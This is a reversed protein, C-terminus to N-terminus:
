YIVFVYNYVMVKTDIFELEYNKGTNGTNKFTLMSAIISITNAVCLALTYHPDRLLLYTTITQCRIQLASINCSQRDFLM